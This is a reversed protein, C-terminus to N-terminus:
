VAGDFEVDREISQIFNSRQVTESRKTELLDSKQLKYKVLSGNMRHPSDIADELPLM